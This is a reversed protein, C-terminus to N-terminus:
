AQADIQAALAFDKDTIGGADHTELWIKVTSYVNFLEPHHDMAEAALGIRVIFGLADKFDARKYVKHLKGGDLSWGDLGALKAQIDGESLKEAM